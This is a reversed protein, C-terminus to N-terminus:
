GNLGFQKAWKALVAPLGYPNTTASALEKAARRWEYLRVAVGGNATPEVELLRLPAGSGVAVVLSEGGTGHRTADLAVRARCAARIVDPVMEWIGRPTRPLPYGDLDLTNM